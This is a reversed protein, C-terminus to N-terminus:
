TQSGDLSSASCAFIVSSRHSWIIGMVRQRSGAVMPHTAGGSLDPSMWLPSCTSRIVPTSLIVNGVGLGVAFM